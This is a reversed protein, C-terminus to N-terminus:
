HSSFNSNGTIITASDLSVHSQVPMQQKDDLPIYYMSQKLVPWRECLLRILLGYFERANYLLAIGMIAWATNLYINWQYTFLFSTGIMVVMAFMAIYSKALGSRGIYQKTASKTNVLLNTVGQQIIQVLVVLLFNILMTVWVPPEIPM